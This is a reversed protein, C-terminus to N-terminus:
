MVEVEADDVAVFDREPDHVMQEADLADQADAIVKDEELQSFLPSDYRVLNDTYPARSSFFLIM